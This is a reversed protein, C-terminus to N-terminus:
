GARSSSPARSFGENLARPSVGSNNARDPNAGRSLLLEVNEPKKAFVARWLATDGFADIADIDAGADLLLRCIEPSCDRAAFALAAWSQGNDKANVDVGARILASIMQPSPPTTLVALMLATRGDRDVSVVSDGAAILKELGVVDSTYVCHIVNDSLEAM